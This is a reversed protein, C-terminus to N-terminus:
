IEEIPLTWKRPSKKVFNYTKDKEWQRIKNVGVGFILAWDKPFMPRSERKLREETESDNEINDTDEGSDTPKEKNKEDEGSSIPKDESIETKSELSNIESERKDIEIAINELYERLEYIEIDGLQSKLGEHTDLWEIWATLKAEKKMKKKRLEEIGNQLAQKRWAQWALLVENVRNIVQNCEDRTLTKKLTVIRNDIDLEDFEKALDPLGYCEWYLHIFRGPSFIKLLIGIVDTRHTLSENLISRVFTSKQGVVSFSEIRERYEKETQFLNKGIQLMSDNESIVETKINSKAEQNQSSETIGGYEKEICFLAQELFWVPYKNFTRIYEYEFAPYISSIESDLVTNFGRYHKKHFVALIAKFASKHKELKYDALVSPIPDENAQVNLGAEKEKEYAAKAQLCEAVDKQWQKKIDSDLFSKALKEAIRDYRPKDIKLQEIGRGM